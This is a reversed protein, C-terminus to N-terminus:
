YGPNQYAAKEEPSVLMADIQGQPIPRLYYNKKITRTHKMNDWNNPEDNKSGGITYTTARDEWRQTRVLDWWRLGEGFFERFREDLIYDVTITEPTAATLEESFDAVYEKNNGNHFTWKGARARLVNVLERATYGDKLTITGTGLETPAVAAEAAILYLEAFRAINAPRPNAGNPQGVTNPDTTDSYYGNKWVNLYALRSIHSPAVVWDARDPLTGAFINSVDAWVEKWQGTEKDKEMKLCKKVGYEIGPVEEPLFTLVVDGDKVPLDNANLYYEKKANDGGERKWNARYSTVFTGDWRSDMNKDTFMQVVEQPTAMRTWPRGYSQEAVRAVSGYQGVVPHGKEEEKKEAETKYLFSRVNTYNWRNMWHAFNDPAAGSGYGYDVGGNYYQDQSTHDAYLVIESNRDNEGLFVNYFSQQLGFRGPNEIADIATNYAKQFYSNAKSRDRTCEPYTPIAKPNVLWWAYTLYAKALFLRAATKTVGGTVRGVEPLDKVAKELDPFICEEYVEPVTNRVSTRTANSNFALKGSGLDLPVGGFTQVLEFYDFGRFFHAEALLADSIGAEAGNAIVGNATNIDTFSTGWLADARCNEPKINPVEPTMDLCLFNEDASQGYTYEDTGTELANFFYGQGWTNRLNAYMATIGGKVGDETKFYEPTFKGRPTENLVDNCSSLGASLAMAVGLAYIYHKM